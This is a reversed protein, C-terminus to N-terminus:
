LEYVTCAGIACRSDMFFEGGLSKCVRNAVSDTEKASCQRHNSRESSANAYYLTLMITKNKDYAYVYRSTSSIYVISGSPLTIKTADVEDTSEDTYSSPPFGIDLDDMKGTYNGHGLYYREQADKISKAVSLAETLRTKEVAIKYQPVAVAALIGIILVVVLLEILTFGHTTIERGQPPLVATLRPLLPLFLNQKNAGRKTPLAVGPNFGEPALPQEGCPPCIVVNEKQM